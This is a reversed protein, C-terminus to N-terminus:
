LGLGGRRELIIQQIAHKDPETLAESRIGFNLENLQAAKAQCNPCVAKGTNPTQLVGAHHVEHGGFYAACLPCPLWFYGMLQAFARHLWRFM